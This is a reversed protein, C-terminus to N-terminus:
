EGYPQMEKLHNLLWKNIKKLTLHLYKKYAASEVSRAASGASEAVSQASQAASWAASGASWAASWAASRAASKNEKTPEKLWKRAGEIAERPRKDDPYSKEFNRICLEASFISLAVSDQKTWEYAKIIRMESWAQKDKEKDSEGKVEVEALIGGKVFDLADLIDKSAHFGNNCCKIEGEAKKWEGIKWVYNLDYNSVIKGDKLNLFKYLKPM